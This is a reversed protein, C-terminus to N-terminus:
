AEMEKLVREGFFFLAIFITALYHIFFSSGTFGIILYIVLMYVLLKYARQSIVLRLDYFRVMIIAVILITGPAGFVVLLQLLVNHVYYYKGSTLYLAVGFGGPLASREEIYNIVLSYIADRNTTYLERSSLQEILLTISRSRMGYNDLFSSLWLLIDRLNEILLYTAVFAVIIFFLKKLFSINISFLYALVLMVICVVAAMRGGLAATALINLLAIIVSVKKHVQLQMIGYSIIFINPVCIGTFISYHAMKFRLLIIAIIVLPVNSIAFKYWRFLFDNLNFSCNSVCLCPVLLCILAQFGEILVYYKYSVVLYNIIIVALLFWFFSITGRGIKPSLFLSIIGILLLAIYELISPLGLANECINWFFPVYIYLILLVSFAKIRKNQVSIDMSQKDYM